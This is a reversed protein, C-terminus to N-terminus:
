RGGGRGRARPAGWAICTPHCRPPATMISWPRWVWSTWGGQQWTPPWYSHWSGRHWAHPQTPPTCPNTPPHHAVARAKALGGLPLLSPGHLSSGARQAARAHPLRGARQVLLGPLRGAGGRGGPPFAGPEGPTRGPDHRWAVGWSCAAGGAWVLDEAQQLFTSHTHAHSSLWTLSPLLSSPAVAASRVHRGGTGGM